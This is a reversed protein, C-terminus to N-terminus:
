ASGAVHRAKELLVDAFKFRFARLKGMSCTTSGDSCNAFSVGSSVSVTPVSAVCALWVQAISHLTGSPPVSPERKWLRKSQERPRPHLNKGPRPSVLEPEPISTAGREHGACFGHFRARQSIRAPAREIGGILGSVRARQVTRKKPWLMPLDRNTSAPASPSFFARAEVISQMQRAREEIEGSGCAGM